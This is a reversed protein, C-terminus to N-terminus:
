RKFVQRQDGQKFRDWTETWNGTFGLPFERVVDGDTVLSNPQPDIEDLMYLAMGINGKSAIGLMLAGSVTMDWSTEEVDISKKVVKGIFSLEDEPTQKLTRESM